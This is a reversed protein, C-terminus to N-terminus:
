LTFTGAETGPTYTGHTYLGDTVTGTSSGGVYVVYTVGTELDPSSLVVSSFEKTSTFTLVGTGDATEIHITTGASVTSRFALGASAQPSSESPAQAMGSSGVAVLLGGSITFETCDLAGNDNATPGNIVLTGGTMAIPGNADIGDGMADIYVYGGNIYLPSTGGNMPGGGPGGQGGPGAQGVTGTGIAVTNIGDDTSNIHIEGGDITIEAGEIGEYSSTISIEGQEITVSEEAHLGDDSTALLFTGGGITISGDSHLADDTADIQFSGGSIALVVGAKLGKTSDTSDGTLGGSGGATITLDGGGVVLGTVAQLGDGGSAIVVTGGEVVIYGLAVEDENSAKIGDGGSTVTITGGGIAVSDRGRLGDDAAEVTISGGVIKLDDDSAIGDNHNAVVVLSGAGNITLDDNSFLAADPETTTQDPYVYSVGDTLRNEAGDALTIVVKDASRVFLPASTSCTVDVGDLILRVDASAVADVVIQGDELTGTLLFTGATNITVLSGAVTVGSGEVTASGGNLTITATPIATESADLDKDSYEVTYTGSGTTNWSAEVAGIAASTTSVDGSDGTTGGISEDDSGAATVTSSSAAGSWAAGGSSCAAASIVVLALLSAVVTKRPQSPRTRSIM